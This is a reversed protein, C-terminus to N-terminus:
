EARGEAKAIAARLSASGDGKWRGTTGWELDHVVSKLAELLEARDSQLKAMEDWAPSILDRITCDDDTEPHETLADFAIGPEGSQNWSTMQGLLAVLAFGPTHQAKKPTTM